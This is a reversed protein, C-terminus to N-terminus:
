VCSHRFLLHIVCLWYNNSFINSGFCGVNKKNSKNKSKPVFCAFTVAGIFGICATFITWLKKSDTERYDFEKYVWLTNFVRLGVAFLILGAVALYIM